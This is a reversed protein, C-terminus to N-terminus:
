LALYILGIVLASLTGLALAGMWGGAFWGITILLAWGTAIVVQLLRFYPDRLGTVPTAKGCSPCNTLGGALTDACEFPQGCHECDVHTM